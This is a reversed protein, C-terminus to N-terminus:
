LLRGLCFQKVGNIVVIIEFRWMWLILLASTVFMVTVRTYLLITTIKMRQEIEPLGHNEFYAHHDPLTVLYM